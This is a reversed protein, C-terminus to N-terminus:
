KWVHKWFFYKVLIISLQKESNDEQPTDTLNKLTRITKGAGRSETEQTRIKM